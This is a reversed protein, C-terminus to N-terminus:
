AVRHGRGSIQPSRRAVGCVRGALSRDDGMDRRVLETRSRICDLGSTRGRRVSLTLGCPSELTLPLALLQRVRNAIEHKVILPQPVVDAPRNEVASDAPSGCSSATAKPIPSGASDVWERWTRSTM